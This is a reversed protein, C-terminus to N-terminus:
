KGVAKTWADLVAKREAESWKTPFPCAATGRAETLAEHVAKALAVCHIDTKNKEMEATVADPFAKLLAPLATKAGRRGIMGLSKVCARTTGNLFEKKAAFAELLPIADPTGCDGLAAAINLRLVNPNGSAIKGADLQKWADCLVASLKADSSGKIATLAEFKVADMPDALLEPLAAPIKDPAAKALYRVARMRVDADPDKLLALAEKSAPLSKAACLDIADARRDPDPDDLDKETAPKIGLLDRSELWFEGPDTEKFGKLIKEAADRKKEALLKHAQKMRADLAAMGPDPKAMAGIAKDAAQKFAAVTRGSEVLVKGSADTFFLQPYSSQGLRNMVREAALDNPDKKFSRYVWLWVVTDYLPKLEASPLLQEEVPM